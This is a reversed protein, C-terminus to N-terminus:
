AVAEVPAKTSKRGHYGLRADPSLRAELREVLIRSSIGERVALVGELALVRVEIELDHLRQLKAAFPLFVLNAFLVGYLTTLLALSMGIGLQAPDELNGLMNILGIVTGMMGFTPAYAGLTKFFSIGLRHREDLSDIETELIERVQDGDIGDVVLQLGAKMFADDVGTLRSELALTGERRTLDAFEGFIDVVQAPDEVKGSLVVKSIKPLKKLDPMQFGMLSAGLTGVLVLVLSSPGILPGFSNGDMVTSLAIALLSLGWGMLMPAM